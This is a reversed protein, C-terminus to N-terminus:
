KADSLQCAIEKMPNIIAIVIKAGLEELQNNFLTFRVGETTSLDSLNFLRPPPSTSIADTEKGFHWKLNKKAKDFEILGM